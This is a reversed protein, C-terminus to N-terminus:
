LKWGVQGRASDLYWLLGDSTLAMEDPHAGPFPPELMGVAGSDDVYGLGTTFDDFFVAGGPSEQLTRIWMSVGPAFSRDEAIGATTIRTLGTSGAAWVGGETSRTLGEIGTTASDIATFVGTAPDFFTVDTSLPDSTWVLGDDDVAIGNGVWSSPTPVSLLSGDYGIRGIRGAGPHPDAFWIGDAAVALSTARSDRAALAFEDIHGTSPDLRAVVHDLPASLWLGGDAGVVQNSIYGLLGTPYRDIAGTEYCEHVIERNVADAYWIGGGAPDAALAGPFGGATATDHEHWTPRPIVGQASATGAAHAPLLVAGVVAAVFLARTASRRLLPRTM